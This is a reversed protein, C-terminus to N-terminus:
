WDLAAATPRVRDEPQEVDKRAELEIGPKGPTTVRTKQLEKAVEAEEDTGQGAAVRDLLAQVKEGSEGYDVKILPVLVPYRQILVALPHRAGREKEYKVNRKRTVKVTDLSGSIKVLGKTVNRQGAADDLAETLAADAQAVQHKRLQLKHWSAILSDVYEVADEFEAGTLPNTYAAM